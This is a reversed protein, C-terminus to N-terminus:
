KTKPSSNTNLPPPKTPTPELDQITNCASEIQSTETLKQILLFLNGKGWKPNLTIQIIVIWRQNIGKRNMQLPNILTPTGTIPQKSTIIM